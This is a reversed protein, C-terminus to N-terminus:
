SDPKPPVGPSHNEQAPMDRWGWGPGSGGNENSTVGEAVSEGVGTAYSSGHNIFQIWEGEAYAQTDEQATVTFGALSTGLTGTGDPNTTNSTENIPKAFYFSTSNLSAVAPGSNSTAVLTNNNASFLGGVEGQTAANAFVVPQPLAHALFSPLAFPIGKTDVNYDEKNEHVLAIAEKVGEPPAASTIAICVVFNIVVLVSQFKCM